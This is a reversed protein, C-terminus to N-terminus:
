LIPTCIKPIKPNRSGLIQHAAEIGSLAAGELFGQWEYFSNTHEGAFFLNRIPTGELGTFATLQGPRYCLYAGQILPRDNWQEIHGLIEGSRARRVQSKAGPYIRDFDQLFDQTQVQFRDPHLSAGLSGSALHVIAGQSPTAGTPNTEWTVQHHPLDSHSVGNSGSDAWPRGTFSLSRFLV